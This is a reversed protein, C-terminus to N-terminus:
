DETFHAGCLRTSKKPETFPIYLDSRTNKVANTQFGPMDSFMPGSIFVLETKAFTLLDVLVTSTIGATNDVHNLAAKIIQLIDLFGFAAEFRLKM